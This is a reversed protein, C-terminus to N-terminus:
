TKKVERVNRQLGIKDLEERWFQAIWYTKVQDFAPRMFPQPKTGPHKVRKFFVINAGSKKSGASRRGSKGAMRGGVNTWEFRLAKKNKPTIIHPSTGYEVDVGYAVGDKLTYTRRGEARPIVHISNKLRGTDVAVYSKAIEEMKHISKFLVKRALRQLFKKDLTTKVGLRIKM